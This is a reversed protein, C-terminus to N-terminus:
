TRMEQMLSLQKERFYSCHRNGVNISYSPSMVDIFAAPGGVAVLEHFNRETPTLFATESNPYAMEEQRFVLTHNQGREAMASRVKDILPTHEPVASYTKLDISGHLVKILGYMGPHDHLPIQKGNGLIFICITIEEERGEPVGM